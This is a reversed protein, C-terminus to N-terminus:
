VVSKRDIRALYDVRAEEMWKIYNAHHTFGMKDTEYYQVKHRYAM